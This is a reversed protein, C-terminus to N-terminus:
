VSSYNLYFIFIYEQSQKVKHFPLRRKCIVITNKELLFVVNGETYMSFNFKKEKKLYRDNSSLTM